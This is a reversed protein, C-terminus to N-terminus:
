EAPEGPPRFGAPDIGLRKLIKQVSVRELGSLRAAQSVNGKTREMLKLVYARTFDDVVREKAEVYPALGTAVGCGAGPARVQADLLRVQTETIVPGSSFVAARRVFNLLERVNGPWHRSGLFDLADPTFEKEGTDLEACTRGLFHMALLGVDKPRERLSPVRVTLVNLRYYLDERFEGSAIRAELNLNTSALIRVDVRINESGGVPRVEREQLARLLKPQVTLPMDGIEDLLLSSGDAATFLGQRAKVAGTFAGRVHGFLESEIIQEPVATCNLSVMGARGRRSLRHITRAVLEKGSGSEGLILVTYDNSAVAEIEERLQRMAPSEGILRQGASGADVAAKLRRNERSLAARDLAKAVARYLVDQDVPKTLFDYAGSKLAKVAVEVSGYGSLMVVTLAPELALARELLAFGDQGPMRVDTLLLACPREQLTELAEETNTRVLVPHEPFGKQILRAVGKAFHSEDDVVLIADSSITEHM